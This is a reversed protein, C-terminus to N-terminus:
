VQRLKDIADGIRLEEQAGTAMNKMSVTGNKVETEGLIMVYQAKKSDAERFQSKFSRAEFGMGASIGADRLSCLLSFGRDIYAPDTVVFAKLGDAEYSVGEASATEVLREIGMAFGTAPTERGGLEAVLKDYRGGALVTNQQPGLKDTIFEFVLGTYYDLGRVLMPNETFKVSVAGLLKKVEAYRAACKECLHEVPKPANRVTERCSESKCDLVRVPARETKQKCTDCLNDANAALYKKLAKIYEPGCESCNLMNINLESKGAGAASLVDSALKIIEADKAATADGFCEAGVQFFERNRGKQPKEYRFMPGIYWLDSKAPLSNEIYARVISATGEPRLVIDRGKKDKFDYMEKMVIDSAEGIGRCFLAREEIVPTIILSYGYRKFVAAASSVVKEWAASEAGFVDKVGRLRAYKM